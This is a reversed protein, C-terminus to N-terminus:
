GRDVKHQDLFGLVLSCFTRREKATLGKRTGLLMELGTGRMGGWEVGDEEVWDWLDGLTGTEDNVALHVAVRNGPGSPALDTLKVGQLEGLPHDGVPAFDAWGSPDGVPANATRSPTPVCEAQAEAAAFLDPTARGCLVDICQQVRDALDKQEARLKKVEAAAEAIRADHERLLREAAQLAVINPNPAM